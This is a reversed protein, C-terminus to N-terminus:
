IDNISIVKPNKQVPQTDVPINIKEYQSIIREDLVVNSTVISSKSYTWENRDRSDKDIFEFFLVPFSQVQLQGTNDPQCHLIVPNSVVVNLESEEVFKGIIIRGIGDQFVIHTKEKM